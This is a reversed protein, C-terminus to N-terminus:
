GEKKQHRVFDSLQVGILPEHDALKAEDLEVDPSDPSTASNRLNGGGWIRSFHYILLYNLYFIIFLQNFSGNNM